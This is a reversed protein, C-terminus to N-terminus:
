PTRLVADQAEMRRATNAKSMVCAGSMASKGRM